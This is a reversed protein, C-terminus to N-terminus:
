KWRAKQQQQGALTKDHMEFYADAFPKSLYPAANDAVHFAQWAQLTEIPTGAYVSSLKPFATKEAVIVRSVKGLNAAALFEKWAFGPALKELESVSMPNYTAIPDRQQEKTWSADAIKTEFAVVDAARADPDKWGALRLLQAVYSQYKAKQAAFDPKLYYDR